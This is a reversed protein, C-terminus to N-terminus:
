PDPEWALCSVQIVDSVISGLEWLVHSVVLVSWVLERFENIYEM